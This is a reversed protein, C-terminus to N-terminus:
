KYLQTISLRDNPPFFEKWSNLCEQKVKTHERFGKSLERQYHITYVKKKLSLCYDLSGNSVQWDLKGTVENKSKAWKHKTDFM